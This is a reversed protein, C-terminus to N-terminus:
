QYVEVGDVLTYTPYATPAPLGDWNGMGGTLVFWMYENFETHPMTSVLIGDIYFKLQTSTWAVGYDHPDAITGSIGFNAFIITDTRKRPTQSAYDHVHLSVFIRDQQGTQAEAVDIELKRTPSLVYMWMAPWNGGQATFSVGKFLFYGFKFAKGSSTLRNAAIDNYNPATTLMGCIGPLAQDYKTANTAGAAGNSRSDTKLRLKGGVIDHMADGPVWQTSTATNWAGDSHSSLYGPYGQWYRPEWLSNTAGPAETRFAPVTNFPESFAQATFGNDTAAQPVGPTPTPTPAAGTTVSFSRAVGGVTVTAQAVTSYSASSTLRLRLPQNNLISGASSTWAGNNVRYEGGTISVPTATNIGTITADGSETLTSRAANTVPAFSYDNPTTNNAATVTVANATSTAIAGSTSTATVVCDVSGATTSTYSAGTQGSIAVGDLRWQQGTVTGGTVTGPSVTFVTGAQGSSPSINAGTVFTVPDIGKIRSAPALIVQMSSSADLLVRVRAELETVRSTLAAFQKDTAAM